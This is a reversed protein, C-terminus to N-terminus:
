ALHIWEVVGWGIQGHDLSIGDEWRRRPRVLPRKEVPKGLLVRYLNRGEGTRRRMQHLNLIVLFLVDVFNNFDQLRLALPITCVAQSRTFEVYTATVKDSLINLAHFLHKTAVKTITSTCIRVGNLVGSRRAICKM